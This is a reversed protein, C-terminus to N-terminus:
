QCQTADSVMMMVRAAKEGSFRPIENLYFAYDSIAHMDPLRQANLAAFLASAESGGQTKIAEWLHMADELGAM